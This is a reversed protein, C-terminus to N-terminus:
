KRVKAPPAPLPRTLANAVRNLVETSTDVRGERELLLAFLDLPWGAKTENCWKCALVINSATTKGHKHRPIVHDLQMTGAACLCYVCRHGDRM